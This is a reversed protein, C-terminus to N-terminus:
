WAGKVLLSLLAPLYLVLLYWAGYWVLCGECTIVVACTSIKSPVLPLLLCLEQIFQCQLNQDKEVDACSLGILFELCAEAHKMQHQLCKGLRWYTQLFYYSVLLKFGTLCCCEALFNNCVCDSFGSHQFMYLTM